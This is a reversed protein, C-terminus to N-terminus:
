AAREGSISFTGLRKQGGADVYGTDNGHQASSRWVHQEGSADLIDNMRIAPGTSGFHHGQPKGSTKDFTSVTLVEFDRAVTCTSNSDRIAVDALGGLNAVPDDLSPRWGKIVVGTSSVGIGYANGDVVGRWDKNSIYLLV